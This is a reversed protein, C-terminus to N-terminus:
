VAPWELTRYHSYLDYACSGTDRGIAQFEKGSVRRSEASQLLPKLRPKFVARQSM